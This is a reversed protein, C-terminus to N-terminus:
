PKVLGFEVDAAGQADSTTLGEAELETVRAAYAEPVPVTTARKSNRKPTTAKQQPKAKGAVARRAEAQQRVHMDCWTWGPRDVKTDAHDYVGNTRHRCYGAAPVAAKATAPVTAKTAKTPNKQAAM